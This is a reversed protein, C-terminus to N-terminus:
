MKFRHQENIARNLEGFAKPYDLFPCMNIHRLCCTGHHVIADTNFPQSFQKNKKKWTTKCIHAKPGSNQSPGLSTDEVNARHDVSVSTNLRSRNAPPWNKVVLWLGDVAASAFYQFKKSFLNDELVGHIDVYRAPSPLLRALVPRSRTSAPRSFGWAGVGTACTGM